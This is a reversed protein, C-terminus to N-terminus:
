LHDGRKRRADHIICGVEALTMGGCIPLGELLHRRYADARIESAQELTLVPRRRQAIGYRNSRDM